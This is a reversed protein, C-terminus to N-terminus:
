GRSSNDNMDEIEQILKDLYEGFRRSEQLEHYATILKQFVDLVHRQFKQFTETAKLPSKDYYASSEDWEHALTNRTSAIKTIRESL